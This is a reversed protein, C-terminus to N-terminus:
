LGLETSTVTSLGKAEVVPGNPVKPVLVLRAVVLVVLVVELVLELVLEVVLGMLELVEPVVMLEVLPDVVLLLV